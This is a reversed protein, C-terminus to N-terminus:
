LITMIRFLVRWTTYIRTLCWPDKTVDAAAAPINMLVRREYDYLNIKDMMYRPNRRFKNRSFIDCVNKIILSKFRKHRQRSYGFFSTM